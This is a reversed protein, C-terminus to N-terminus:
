IFVDTHVYWGKSGMRRYADLMAHCVAVALTWGYGRGGVCIGASKPLEKSIWCGYTELQNGSNPYCSIEVDFGHQMM